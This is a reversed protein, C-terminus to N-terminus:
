ASINLFIRTIGTSVEYFGKYIKNKYVYNSFGCANIAKLRRTKLDTTGDSITVLERM